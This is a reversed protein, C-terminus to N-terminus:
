SAPVKGLPIRIGWAFPVNETNVLVYQVRRARSPDIAASPPSLGQRTSRAAGASPPSASGNEGFLIPGTAFSSSPASPGGGNTRM